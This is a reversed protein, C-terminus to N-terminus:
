ALEAEKGEEVPAFGSSTGQYIEQQSIETESNRSFWGM